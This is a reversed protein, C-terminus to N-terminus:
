GGKAFITHVYCLGYKYVIYMQNHEIKKICKQKENQCPADPHKVGQLLHPKLSIKISTM